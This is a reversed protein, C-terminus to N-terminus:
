RGRPSYTLLVVGKSYAKAAVPRMKTAVGERFFQRGRGVIVPYIAVRLVDVLGKRLLSESFHTYGYVLLDGGETQKMKEIAGAADDRVLKSNQWRTDHLTSSFVYKDMANIRAAWPDNRQSFIPFLSEYGGRGFLLADCASVEGLEDRFSEEEKYDRSGWSPPDEFVGDLSVLTHVILKRM